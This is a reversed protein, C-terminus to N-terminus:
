GILELIDDDWETSGASLTDATTDAEVPKAYVGANHLAVKMVAILNRSHHGHFTKAGEGKSYLSVSWVDNGDQWLRSIRLGHDIGVAVLEEFTEPLARHGSPLIGDANPKSEM